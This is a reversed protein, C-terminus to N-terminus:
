HRRGPRNAHGEHISMSRFATQVHADISQKTLGDFYAHYHTGRDASNMAGTLEEYTLPKSLGIHALSAITDWQPGTLVPEPESSTNWGFTGPMLWGGDDYGRGHGLVNEWGGPASGYNHVAYNMGSYINAMPDVSVGYLFPGVNRFPGAYSDFTGRIVQMLGVSPHGALWNSDTKNVALPNGGSETTMQRLGIIFDQIPQHLVLMINKMMQAYRYVGGGIGYSGPGGGGIKGLVGIAAKVAHEVLRRPLSLMASALEGSAPTHIGVLDFFANEAATANGTVLALVIKGVDLAGGIIGGSAYGPVGAARFAPALMKSHEKSVVTEGPELLAPVVDGGGYGGLRGGSSLRLLPMDFKSLGVAGMVDNWLRRIGNDYVTNVLFRVPTEFVNEIGGWIRKIASVATSFANPISKTFVREIPQVVNRDIWDWSNGIANRINQWAHRTDTVLVDYANPITKTFFGVLKLVFDNWLWNRLNLAAARFLGIVYHFNKWWTNGANLLFDFARGIFMAVSWMINGLRAIDKPGDTELWKLFKKGSPSELWDAINSFFKALAKAAAEILPQLAPMLDKIVKLAAAFVKMVEPQVAKSLKGWEKQLSQLMRAVPQEDAPLKKIADGGKGVAKIIGTLAPVAVAALGAFGIGIPLLAAILPGSMIAVLAAAAITIPNIITTGAGAMGGLSEVASSAAGAIGGTGNGGDLDSRLSGLIGHLGGGSGGVFASRISAVLRSGFGGTDARIPVDVGRAREEARLKDVDRKAASTDAKVPLESDKGESLGKDFGTKTDRGIRRGREPAKADESRAWQDLPTGLERVVASAIARGVERGINSASPVLQQRVKEDWGRADPVVGVAVDGVFIESM